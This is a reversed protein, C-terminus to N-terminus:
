LNLKGEVPGAHRCLAAHVSVSLLATSAHRIYYPIIHLRLARVRRQIPEGDSLPETAEQWLASRNRWVLSGKNQTMWPKMLLSCSQPPLNIWKACTVSPNQTHTNFCRSGQSSSVSSVVFKSCHISHSPFLAPPTRFVTGSLEPSKPFPETKVRRSQNENKRRKSSERVIESSLNLNPNLLRNLSCM